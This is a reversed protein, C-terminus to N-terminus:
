KRELEASVEAVPGGFNWGVKSGMKKVWKTLFSPPKFEMYAQFHNALEAAQSSELSPDPKSLVDLAGAAFAQKADRLTAKRSYFVAPVNPYTGVLEVLLDLGGQPSQGLQRCWTDLLARARHVVAHAERLLRKGNEPAQNISAYLSDVARRTEDIGSTISQLDEAPLGGFGTPLKSSRPFYMDLVFLSPSAGNLAKVVRAFGDSPDSATVPIVEFQTGDYLRVFADVEAQDDDVFVIRRRAM